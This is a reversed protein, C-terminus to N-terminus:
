QLVATDILFTIASGCSQRSICLGSDSHLFGQLSRPHSFITLLFDKESELLFWRICFFTKNTSLSLSHWQILQIHSSITPQPYNQMLDIIENYMHSTADLGWIFDLHAWEPIRKHYILSKIQSLLIDADKPDALLDQEGTWVANPVTMEEVNYLPPTAQFVHLLVPILTWSLVAFNLCANPAKKQWQEFYLHGFCVPLFHGQKGKRDTSASIVWSIAYGFSFHSRLQCLFSELEALFDYPLLRSCSLFIDPHRQILGQRPGKPSQDAASSMCPRTLFCLMHCPHLSAHLPKQLAKCFCSLLLLMPSRIRPFLSTIIWKKRVLCFRSPMWHSKLSLPTLSLGFFTANQTLWWQFM